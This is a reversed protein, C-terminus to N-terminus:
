LTYTDLGNLDHVIHITLIGSQCRLDFPNVLTYQVHLGTTLSIDHYRGLWLSIDLYM